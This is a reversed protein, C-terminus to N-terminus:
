KKNYWENEISGPSALWRVLLGFLILLIIIAAGVVPNAIFYDRFEKILILSYAVGLATWSIWRGAHERITRYMSQRLRRIELRNSEVGAETGDQRKILTLMMQLIGVYNEQRSGDVDQELEAQLRAVQQKANNIDNISIDSDTVHGGSTGINITLNSARKELQDLTDQWAALEQRKLDRKDTDM